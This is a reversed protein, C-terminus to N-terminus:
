NNSIIIESQKTINAILLYDRTTLLLNYFPQTGDDEEVSNM